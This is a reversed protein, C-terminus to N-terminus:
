FNNPNLPELKRVIKVIDGKFMDLKNFNGGLFYGKSDIWYPLTKADIVFEIVSKDWRQECGNNTHIDAKHEAKVVKIVAGSSLEFEYKTGLEGFYSGLAVAIYGDETYFYGDVPTLTKIFRYQESGKNLVNYDMYTKNTGYHCVEIDYELETTIIDKGTLLEVPTLDYIIEEKPRKIEAWMRNLDNIGEYIAVTGVTVYVLLFLKILTKEM